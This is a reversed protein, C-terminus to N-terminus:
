QTTLNFTPPCAWASGMWRETFGSVPCNSAPLTFAPGAPGAPGQPGAPGAPGTAGQLGTITGCTCVGASTMQLASNPGVCVPCKTDAFASVISMGLIVLITILRM